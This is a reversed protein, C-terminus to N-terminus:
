SNKSIQDHIKLYKTKFNLFKTKPNPLRGMTEVSGKRGKAVTGKERRTAKGGDGRARVRM